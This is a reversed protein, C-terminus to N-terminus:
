IRWIPSTLMGDATRRYVEDQRRDIPDGLHLCDSQVGAVTYQHGNLWAQDTPVALIGVVMFLTRGDKEGKNLMMLQGSIRQTPDVPVATHDLNWCQCQGNVHLTATM